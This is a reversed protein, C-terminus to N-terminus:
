MADLADVHGGEGLLFQVTQVGGTVCLDGSCPEPIERPLVDTAHAWLLSVLVGARFGSPPSQNGDRGGYVLLVVSFFSVKSKIRPGGLPMLPDFADEELLFEIVLVADCGSGDFLFLDSM